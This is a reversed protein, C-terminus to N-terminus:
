HSFSLSTEEVRTVCINRKAGGCTTTPRSRPGKQAKPPGSLALRPGLAQILAEKTPCLANDTSPFAM